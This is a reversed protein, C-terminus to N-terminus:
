ILVAVSLPELSDVPIYALQHVPELVLLGRGLVGVWVEHLVEIVQNLELAQHAVDVDVGLDLVGLLPVFVVLLAPHQTGM